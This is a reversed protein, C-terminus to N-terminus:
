GKVELFGKLRELKEGWYAKMETAKKSDPIKLHQVVVQSKKEGKPYFDISLSTGDENWSIRASKNETAKRITINEKGLWATRTKEITWANYLTNVPVEMTKSVSIEFGDEKQGREKLGRNWEYSTTLLNHNWQGLPQLGEISSVLCFIEPHKMKKAGKKDLLKFWEEMTKNTKEVVLKDTIIERNKLEAM